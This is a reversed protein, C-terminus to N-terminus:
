ADTESPRLQWQRRIRALTGNADLERLAREVRPLLDEGLHAGFMLHFRVSEMRTPLIRVQGTVMAASLQSNWDHTRYYFFRGRGMSLKRLNLTASKGSEEFELGGIKRLRETVGTGSLILIKGHAGLRRVDGWDDIQVPDDARAILHYDFSFLPTAAVQFKDRRADNDVLCNADLEGKEMRNEIRRLPQARPEFVFRVDPLQKELARLLDPCIGRAGLDPAPGAAIYKPAANEQVAVRIQLAADANAALLLALAGTASRHKM